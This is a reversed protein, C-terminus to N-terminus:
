SGVEPQNKLWGIVTERNGQEIFLLDACECKWQGEQTLVKMLLNGIKQVEKHLGEMKSKVMWLRHQLVAKEWQARYRLRSIEALVEGDMYNEFINRGGLAETLAKKTIYTSNARLIGLSTRTTRAIALEHM